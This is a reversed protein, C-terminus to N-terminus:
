FIMKVLKLYAILDGQNDFSFDKTQYRSMYKKLKGALEYNREHAFQSIKDSLYQIQEQKSGRNFELATM